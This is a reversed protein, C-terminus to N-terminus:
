SLVDPLVAVVVGQIILDETVVIPMHVPNDSSPKLVVHNGKRSFHKITAEDNILAVVRDGDDAIAQQRVLVLDGEEIGSLDMSDGVARLLFYTSGPRAIRTSISVWAEADQQALTPLGCAVSGVLPVDVTHEMPDIANGPLKIVGDKYKLVGRKALRELMLQVSRPSPYGIADGIQRLSPTKGTQRINSRIFALGKLDMQTKHDM